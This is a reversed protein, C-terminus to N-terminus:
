NHQRLYGAVARLAKPGAFNGVVPVIANNKELESLTRFRDDTALYSRREGHGDTEAMLDAYTPFNGGRFFGGSPFSYNLDPGAEDFAKYVYELGSLDDNTLAFSHHKTLWDKAAQLNRDFLEQSAEEHQYPPM